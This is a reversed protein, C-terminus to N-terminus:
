FEKWDGDDAFTNQLGAQLQVAGGSGGAAMAPVKMNETVEVPAAMPARETSQASQNADITFFSMRQHLRQAQDQLTQSAAANEEVLASNQQTMEDMQTIANNIEEVGTAQEKSAAAIESVIDAVRKISDVIEDLASGTDNVLKVGERVESGSEVILGKIDKAAESSRQALLRVESAVVAFGKGADGARAAEVAANLALLNTQFAIEDIVGIIDSIKQSSGEIRSMAEVAKSVINGGGTAVDRSSVALQSAQEANDANQKVTSAMEEMSAATEELNSAQQETRQSLDNTGTNIEGSANTVENATVVVESVIESLKNGTENLNNKLEDFVGKYDQEVRITLDGGSLLKLVGNVDGIAADTNESLRNIAEGLNLMFGDKDDLSIRKKFDGDVASSVVTNIEREIAREQTVNKWEVVTGLRGGDDDLVPNAILNFDLGAVTISTDFTGSLRDLMGRQHAPNKHFVDINTGILKTADFAKLEKRLDSEADVMMADMTRNMYVINYEADSVMVNTTCNDLAIKIRLNEAAEKKVVEDHALQETQDSWEVVTGVRNGDADIIPTAILGFKLGAVDLMTKYTTSMNDLMGRQHAPNQHFTDMNKGVLSKADFNPLVTKLTAEADSLMEDLSVNLYVINYDGDAVMVNTTCCDLAIKIREYEVSRGNIADLSRALDGLEDKKDMSPIEVNGEQNALAKMAKTMGILPTAISRSMFFAIAGTLLVAIALIIWLEMLLQSIRATNSEVDVQLLQKQSAVMGGTRSGDENKPGALITLLKEALPATQTALLYRAMQWKKSGRIEFMKPPLYKFTEHAKGFKEFAQRQTPTLLGASKELEDFRRENKIWLENFESVSKKDGTLLYARISALALGTTSRVDGMMALLNKREPTAALKQEENIMDTLAAIMIAARPAAQQILIKSAPEEDISHSLAEVQNQAAEFQVLITKFEAWKKINDSNEWNRSLRDMTVGAKEIDAWIAKRRKKFEPNGSVMWGRLNALSAYVEAVLASSAGATPSRQENIRNSVDRIGFVMWGTTGVTGALILLVVGFGLALRKTIALNGLFKFM